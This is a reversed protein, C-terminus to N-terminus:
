GNERDTIGRMSAAGPLTTDNVLDPLVTKVLKKSSDATNMISEVFAIAQREIAGVKNLIESM